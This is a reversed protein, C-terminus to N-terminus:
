AVPLLKNMQQQSKSLSEFDEDEYVDSSEEIKAM